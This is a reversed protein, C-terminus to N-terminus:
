GWVRSVRERDQYEGVMEEIREMTEPPRLEIVQEMEFNEEIEVACELCFGPSAFSEQVFPKGIGEVTNWFQGASNKSVALYELKGRTRTAQEVLNKQRLELNKFRRELEALVRPTRPRSAPTVEPSKPQPSFDPQIPRTTRRSRYRNGGLEGYGSERKPLRTGRPARKPLTTKDSLKHTFSSPKLQQPNPKPVPKPNLAVIPTTM